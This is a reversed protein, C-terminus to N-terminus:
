RAAAVFLCVPWWVFEVFVSVLMMNNYNKDTM